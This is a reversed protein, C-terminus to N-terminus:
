HVHVQFFFNISQYQEWVQRLLQDAFVHGVTITIFLKKYIESETNFNQGLALIVNPSPRPGRQMKYQELAPFFYGHFDFIKFANNQREIMVAEGTQGPLGAYIRTRHLIWYKVSKSAVWHLMECVYFYVVPTEAFKSIGWKIHGFIIM